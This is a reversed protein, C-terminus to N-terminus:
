KASISQLYYAGRNGFDDDAIIVRLPGLGGESKGKLLKGDQEYVILVNNGKEVDSEYVTSKFGDSGTFTYETFKSHGPAADSMLTELPVGTFQGNENDRNSTVIEKNVSFSQMAQLEKVTYEKVIKGDGSVSLAYNDSPKAAKGNASNIFGLVITAVVLASLTIIVILSNRKRGTILRKAKRMM